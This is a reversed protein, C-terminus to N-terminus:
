SYDDQERKEQELLAQVVTKLKSEPVLVTVDRESAKAQCALRIGGSLDTESLKRRELQTPPSLVGGMHVVKCMLCSAHGGCRQPILVRAARALSVITQGPRTRTTRGSPQFTIKGM